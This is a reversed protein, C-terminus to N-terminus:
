NKIMLKNFYPSIKEPVSLGQEKIKKEAIKLGQVSLTRNPDRKLENIYEKYANVYQKDLLLVDALLEHSPKIPIPPGYGVRMQDEIQTAQQLISIAEKFKGQQLKIQAQLELAMIKAIKIGADTVITFNDTHSESALTSNLTVKSLKDLEALYANIAANNQRKKLAIMANIYIDSARSAPEMEQM